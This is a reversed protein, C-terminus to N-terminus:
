LLLCLFVKLISGQFPKIFNVESFIIVQCLFIVCDTIYDFNFRVICYLASTLDITFDCDPTVDFNVNINLLNVNTRVSTVTVDRNGFV